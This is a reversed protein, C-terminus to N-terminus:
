TKKVRNSGPLKKKKDVCIDAKMREIVMEVQKIAYEPECISGLAVIVGSTFYISGEDSFLFDEDAGQEKVEYDYHDLKKICHGGDTVYVTNSGYFNNHSAFEKMKRKKQKVSEHMVGGDRLIRISAKIAM